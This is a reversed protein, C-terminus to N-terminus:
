VRMGVIVMDDMQDYTKEGEIHMWNDLLDAIYLKQKPAPEKSIEILMQRFTSLLFKKGEGGGFQDYYGDSFIYLMEGGKLNIQHNTFEKEKAYIGIPQRDGKFEMLEGDPQVIFLPNRAGAFHLEKSEPFYVCLAMDMGDRQEMFKGTQNLTSKIRSRLKNLIDAANSISENQLVENILTVGLMSLFGGPVGHGTCDVASVIICPMSNIQFEKYFYFDGSVHQKPKFFIFSERFYGKPLQEEHLVARQINEAYMISETLQKNIFEIKKSAKELQSNKLHILDRQSTIEENFQELENNTHKLDSNLGIIQSEYQRNLKTLFLFGLVMFIAPLLMVRSITEYSNFSVLDPDFPIGILDVANDYFVICSLNVFIAVFLLWKDKNDILILPLVISALIFIRPLFYHNINIVSNAHQSIASFFLFCIPTVLSFIFSNIRYYGKKNLLPISFIGLMGVYPFLSQLSFQQFGLLIVITRLTFVILFLSIAIRNLLIVRRKIEFRMGEAVGAYSLSNWLKRM